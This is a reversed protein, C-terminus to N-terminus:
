SSTPDAEAAAVAANKDIGVLTYCREVLDSKEGGAATILNFADENTDMGPVCLMVIKEVEQMALDMNQEDKMDELKDVNDILYQTLAVSQDRSPRQLHIMQDGVPVDLNSGLIAKLAAKNNQAQQQKSTM